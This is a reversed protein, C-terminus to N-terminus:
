PRLIPLTKREYRSIGERWKLTLASTFVWIKLVYFRSSDQRTLQFASLLTPPLCRHHHTATPSPTPGRTSDPSQTWSRSTGQLWGPPLHGKDATYNDPPSESWTFCLLLFPSTYLNNWLRSNSVCAQPLLQAFGSSICNYRRLAQLLSPDCLGIPYLQCHWIKHWGWGRFGDLHCHQCLCCGTSQIKLENNLKAFTKQASGICLIIHLTSLSEWPDKNLSRLLDPSIGREM